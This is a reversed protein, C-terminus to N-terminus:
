KLRSLKFIDVLHKETANKECIIDMSKDRAAASAKSVQRPGCPEIQRAQPFPAGLVRYHWSRGMKGAQIECLCPPAATPKCSKTHFIIHYIVCSYVRNQMSIVTLRRKYRNWELIKVSHFGITVLTVTTVQWPWLNSASNWNRNLFRSMKNEYNTHNPIM